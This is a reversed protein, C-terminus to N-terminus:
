SFWHGDMSRGSFVCHFSGPDSYLRNETLKHSLLFASLLFRVNNECFKRIEPFSQEGSGALGTSVGQQIGLTSVDWRKVTTDSSGSMLGKGDPTFETCWVCGAHGCWKAVLMHTRSDWISLSHDWNGGAIYRGDPSFAVSLFVSTRGTVPLVKSSGDRINWIRVSWDDSGSVLFRGNPSFAIGNVVNKHGKLM